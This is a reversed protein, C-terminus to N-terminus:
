GYQGGTATSGAANGPLYTAGGGETYVVGNLSANYRPGTASGSFTDLRCAVSGNQTAHAFGIAFAPTGTLTITFNEARVLAGADARWHAQGGGSITYNGVCFIRGGYQSLLHTHMTGFDMNAYEVYGRSSIGFTTAGGSLKMGAVRARSGPNSAITALEAGAFTMVVNAPTSVNGVILLDDPDKQGTTLPITFRDAYTGDAISVTVSFGSLDLTEVVDLAHQVTLFASGPSLGDNSVDSGTTSVYYTRNATLKGRSNVTGGVFPVDEFTQETAGLSDKLTVDCITNDEAFFQPFWGAADSADPGTTPNSAPTTLDADRYIDAPTTTGAVYFTLTAGVM